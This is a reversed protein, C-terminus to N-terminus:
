DRETQGLVVIMVVKQKVPGLPSMSHLSQVNRATDHVYDNLMKLQSSKVNSM